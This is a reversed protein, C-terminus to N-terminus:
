EQAFRPAYKSFRYRTYDEAKEQVIEDYTKKKPYEYLKKKSENIPKKLTDKHLSEKCTPTFNKYLDQLSEKCTNDIEKVGEVRIKVKAKGTDAYRHSLGIRNPTQDVLYGTAILKIIAKSITMRSLGSRKAIKEQSAWCVGDDMQCYRWIAGFVMAETIGLSPEHVICDFVPTFGEVEAPIKKTREDNPNSM